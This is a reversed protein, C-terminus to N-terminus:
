ADSTTLRRKNSDPHHLARGVRSRTQNSKLRDYEECAEFSMLVAIPKGRKSITIQTDQVRELLETLQARAKGAAVVSRKM